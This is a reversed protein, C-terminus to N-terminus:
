FILKTRYSLLHFCLPFLSFSLNFKRSFKSCNLKNIPEIRIFLDPVSSIVAKLAEVAIIDVTEEYFGRGEIGKPYKVVHCGLLSNSGQMGSSSEQSTFTIGNSTIASNRVVARSAEYTKGVANRMASRLVNSIVKGNSSSISSLLTASIDDESGMGTLISRARKSSKRHTSSSAKSYQDEPVSSGDLSRGGPLSALRRSNAAAARAEAAAKRKTAQASSTVSREVASKTTKRPQKSKSGKENKLFEEQARINEAFSATAAMASARKPRPKVNATEQGNTVKSAQSNKGADQNVNNTDAPGNVDVEEFKCMVNDGSQMWKRVLCAESAETDGNNLNLRRPPFGVWFQVEYRKRKRNSRKKNESSTCTSPVPVPVGFLEYSSNTLDHISMSPTITVVHRQQKNDNKLTPHKGTLRIKFSAEAM